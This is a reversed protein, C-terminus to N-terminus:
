SKTGLFFFNEKVLTHIVCKRGRLHNNQFSSKEKTEKQVIDFIIENEEKKM